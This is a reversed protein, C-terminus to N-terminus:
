NKIAEPQPTEEVFDKERQKRTDESIASRTVRTMDFYRHGEYTSSHIYLKYGTEGVTTQVTDVRKVVAPVKAKPTETGSPGTEKLLENLVRGDMEASPDIGLLKLITPALDVNSAPITSEIGPKGEPASKFDPGVVILTNHIDFPSSTGHGATGKQMTTGKFGSKNAAASWNASVLIDASRDCGWNAQDFSLTGPALGELSGPGKARTFIAGAWPTLQLAQVIKTVTEIDHNKVYVAGEVVIVDDSDKSAKLGKEILLGPLDAGNSDPGDGVHTSFGHDSTIVINTTELLHRRRMEDLMRGLEADVAHLAEITKSTGTGFEHATHDPDTIWMITLAPKVKEIGVRFYADFIYRNRALNPTADPPVAGLRATWKTLEDPKIMDVNVIGAGSLTHDLLYASGTSGSSLVLMQKGAGKLIEGLSPALLLKGGTQQQIKELNGASGTSLGKAPDVEPFYVTNGLLGHKNPYCGTVMSSANVRTVTPFVSHHNKAVVGRSGLGFLNPMFKPTVYDPRLGDLVILLVQKPKAQPQDIPQATCM